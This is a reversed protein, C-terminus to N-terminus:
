LLGYLVYNLRCRDNFIMFSNRRGKIYIILRGLKIIVSAEGSSNLAANYCVFRETPSILNMCIPHKLIVITVIILPCIAKPKLNKLVPYDNRLLFRIEMNSIRIFETM